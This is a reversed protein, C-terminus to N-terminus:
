FCTSLKIYFIDTLFTIQEICVETENAPCSDDFIVCMLSQQIAELNAHNEPHLAVLHSRVKFVGHLVM